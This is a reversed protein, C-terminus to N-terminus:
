NAVREVQEWLSRWIPDQPALSRLEHQLRQLDNACDIDYWEPLVACSTNTRELCCLTQPWVEPTSWAIGDFIPPAHEAAGVLYYGGDSTPGLVAQHTRLEHFAQELYDRPLTPSDSGILVARGAGRAFAQAFFARMRAGLDGSTQVELRWQEGALPLFDRLRHPPWVVLVREDGVQDFRRLTAEIWTRYLEAAQCEGITAALRTKVKGPTWHKAFVGLLNV